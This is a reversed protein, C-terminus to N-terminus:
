YTPMNQDVTKAWQAVGGSLNIINDFGAQKLYQGVRRSRIGHHCIVVTERTPDLSDINDPVQAMPMLISDEIKCLEFEWPQRVDLLLPTSECSQLYAKLESANLERM